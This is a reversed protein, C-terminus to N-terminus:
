RKITVTNSERSERGDKFRISVYYQASEGKRLTQDIYEPTDAAVNYMYKFRKDGDGKRFVCYYYSVGIQPVAGTEWTLRVVGDHEVWAGSLTIPIDLFHPGQHLWSVALSNSVYTTSNHSEVMYYYRQEQHYPPNDDVTMAYNGSAAISDADWVALVEWEGDTGLRRLLRHFTMDADTGVVWRMHMGQQDNHWSEDLHATSPPSDHPRLVQIAPSWESINNSWDIARVKYYIYKQNVDLALTDIYGQQKIGGENRLLFDHTMDNAYALDYYAIDNDAPNPLWSLVVYGTPMVIAKLSDPAEPAKFDTIRVLQALGMNENGSDDYASIAMMGTRLNTVDVVATTDTPSILTAGDSNLPMLPRWHHGTIDENYYHIVYGQVDGDQKEPDPNQWVVHALVRAMPDNDDPRELVIYKLQPALPPQIDRAVATHVPSPQTLEGFADHALVRYEWVGTYPVSDSYVILGEYDEQEVMSVYPKENLRVWSGGGRERREIEFSSHQKDEWSLLFRCMSTLTDEVQPDYAAPEYPRNVVNERVGPEFIIKGGNDWVTPQVYYEYTDGRKVSRDVLGVAMDLALDPRWEAVMMAYAFSIDQESNYEMNAGMSGPKEETQAETIRGEGYLVGACIMALSDTPPYKTEFDAQSLPKLRHALTVEEGTKKDVRLVNVGGQVLFMWSVYDEPMWRLYIRDGYTRTMLHIKSTLIPGVYEGAVSDNPNVDTTEQARATMGLTLMTALLCIAKSHNKM